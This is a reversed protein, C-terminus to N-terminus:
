EKLSPKAKFIINPTCSNKNNAIAIQAAGLDSDTILLKSFWLAEACPM